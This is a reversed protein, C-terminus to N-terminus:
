VEQFPATIRSGPIMARRMTRMAKRGRPNRGGQKSIEELENKITAEAWEARGAFELAKQMGYRVGSVFDKMAQMGRRQGLLYENAVAQRFFEEFEATIPM